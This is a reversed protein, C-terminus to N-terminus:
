SRRVDTLDLEPMRPHAAAREAEALVDAPFGIPIAMQVRLEDWGSTSPLAIRPSPV